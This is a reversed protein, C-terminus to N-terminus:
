RAKEKSYILLDYLRGKSYISYISYGAEPVGASNLLNLLYVLNSYIFIM